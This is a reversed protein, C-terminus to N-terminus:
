VQALKHSWRFAEEEGEREAEQQGQGESALLWKSCSQSPRMGVLEVRVQAWSESSIVTSQSCQICVVWNVGGKECRLLNSGESLSTDAGSRVRITCDAILLYLNGFPAQNALKHLFVVSLAIDVPVAMLRATNAWCTNVVPDVTPGCALTLGNPLISYVILVCISCDNVLWEHQEWAFAALVFWPQTM